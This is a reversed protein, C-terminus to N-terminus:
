TCLETACETTCGDGDGMEVVKEVEWISVREGHFVSM